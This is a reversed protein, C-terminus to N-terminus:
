QERHPRGARYGALRQQLYTALEANRQRQALAIAREAAQVAREFQGTEAYAAALTDLATADEGALAIAQQALRLAEQGGRMREEPATALIWAADVMAGDSRPNNALARRFAELAEGRRGLMNLAAGLNYHAQDSSPDLRAAQEFHPIAQTPRGRVLWTMGLNNHVTGDGPAKQAARNLLQLAEETRGVQALILGLGSLAVPEDPRLQLSAMYHQAAPQFREVRDLAQAAVVHARAQDADLQPSAGQRERQYAFYRLAQEAFRAAEEPFRQSFSSAVGVLLPEIPQFPINWRGELPLAAAQLQKGHLPLADLDELVTDLAAKGRYIAAIRGQEDLLLSTPVALSPLGPFWSEQLLEIKEVLSAQALGTTFPFRLGQIFARADQPTTPGDPDLAEVSLAVVELGAASVEDRRRALEGLEAACPACWSAWLTVLTPRGAPVTVVAGGDFSRYPLDIKPVRRSLLARSPGAPPLEPQPLGRLATEAKPVAWPEAQGSGQELLYRRPAEVGQFRERQGGPWVVDVGIIEAEPDVGFHLWKTSQAHFGSGAHLTRALPPVASDAFRLEVRAGIGDRNAERGRLRIQVARRPRDLRNLMLRLRPGTRNRLWLDLDGDQDWDVVGIARGDDLFDLGSVASADVFDGGTNLFVCNRENGSWSRGRRVLEMTAQWGAEYSSGAQQESDPSQSM